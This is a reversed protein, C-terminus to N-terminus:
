SCCTLIRQQPLVFLLIQYSPLAAHWLIHHLLSLGSLSLHISATLSSCLFITSYSTNLVTGMLIKGGSAFTIVDVHAIFFDSRFMGRVYSHVSNHVFQHYGSRNILCQIDGYIHSSCPINCPLVTVLNINFGLPFHSPLM